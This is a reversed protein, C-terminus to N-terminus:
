TTPKPSKFYYISMVIVNLLVDLHYYKVITSHYRRLRRYRFFFKSLGPITKWLLTTYMHSDINICFRRYQWYRCCIHVVKTTSLSFYRRYIHVAKKKCLKVFQYRYLITWISSKATLSPCKWKYVYVFQYPWFRCYRSKDEDKDQTEDISM